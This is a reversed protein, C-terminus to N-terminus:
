DLLSKKITKVDDKLAAKKTEAQALVQSKGKSLADDVVEQAAQKLDDKDCVVEKTVVDVM